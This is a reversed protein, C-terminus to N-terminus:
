SPQPTVIMTVVRERLLKLHAFLMEVRKRDCGSQKFAM